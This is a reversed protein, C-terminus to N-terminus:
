PDDRLAVARALGVPAGRDLAKGLEQGLRQPRLRRAAGRARGTRHAAFTDLGLAAVALDLSPPRSAPPVASGALLRDTQFVDPGFRWTRGDEVLRLSRTVAFDFLLPNVDFLADCMRRDDPDLLGALELERPVVMYRLAPLPYDSGYLLRDHLEPARLLERIARTDRHVHTMASVDAYLTTAHRPETFLRLFLDFSAVDGGGPADLDRYRGLSAGHAVIVRVGAGLARRLRLPNGLEQGGASEIAYEKGAHTLLPLGLEALRRYFRDCRPSAPDIGMANPLWKVAVAGDAAARDLREV